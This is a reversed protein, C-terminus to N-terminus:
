ESRAKQLFSKRNELLYDFNLAPTVSHILVLPEETTNYHNQPKNKPLTIKEGASLTQIKGDLLFTLKGSLVEFTEDQLVHFHDPVLKGKKNLTMKMKIRVGNTDKATELFEYVEGTDPNQLLQGKTPM